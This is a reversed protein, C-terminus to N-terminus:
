CSGLCMTQALLSQGQPFGAFFVLSAGAAIALLRRVTQRKSNPLVHSQVPTATGLLPAKEPMSLSRAIHSSSCTGLSSILSALWSYVLTHHLRLHFTSSPSTPSAQVHLDPTCSVRTSRSVSTRPRVSAHSTCKMTIEDEMLQRRCCCWWKRDSLAM